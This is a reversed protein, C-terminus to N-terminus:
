PAPKEFRSQDMPANATIADFDRKYQSSLTSVVIKFPVKVGRVEKYDLFDTEEPADGLVSRREISKRVLLGNAIDFYFKQSRTQKDQVRVVWAGKGNVVEKGILAADRYGLTKVPVYNDFTAKLDFLDEDPLPRVGASDKVWAERGNWRIETVGRRGNTMDFMQDPLNVSQEIVVSAPPRMGNRTVLTGKFSLSKIGQVKQDGGIAEIYNAFIQKVDPQDNSPVASPAAGQNHWAAAQITPTGLPKNSGRHCTNCTVVLQGGFTDRNIAQQMQIMRRAMKKKPKEDSDWPNVHCFECTVGLSGAMFNMAPMLESEPIDRLVKVNKFSEGATKSQQVAEQGAAAVLLTGAIVLTAILQFSPVWVYKRSTM